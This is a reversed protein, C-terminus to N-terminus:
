GQDPAPGVSDREILDVDWVQQLNEVPEGDLLRLALEAATRGAARMSSTTATLAPVMSDPKLFIVYTEM